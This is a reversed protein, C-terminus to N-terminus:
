PGAASAGGFHQIARLEGRAHSATASDGAGQAAAALGRLSLVRRPQHALAAQFQREADGYRKLGLLLEGLLEHSPKFVPPPGFAYALSDEVATANALLTVANASDLSGDRAALKTAVELEMGLVALGKLYQADSPDPDREAQVLAAIRGREQEFAARAQTAADGDGRRAAAFARGFQYSARPAAASDLEPTWQAVDGSWDETDILYHVWMDVASGMASLDPDLDRMDTKYRARMAQQECGVVMRRADALRGQEVYGYALWSNGHGCYFPGAGHKAGMADFMRKANENARVVDDWMGLAMFIHSTMHQAHGADPAVRALARAAPLAAAAHEPDDMAHIWYHTAAPEQPHRAFVSEALSAARLYTPVNRVGQSLGLLSLAYFLRAEDDGPNARLVAAMQESFLTDRRAKPGDGYLADVARMYGRERATPAARERAEPTAALKGLAKRGAATDQEDWVAHTYTMAEGWYAMAFATDAHEAAQFADAAEDYHFLHLLLVGRSFDHQAVASRTSTPFDVSGYGAVSIAHSTQAVAAQGLLFATM